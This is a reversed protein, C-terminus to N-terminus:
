ESAHLPQTDRPAGRREVELPLVGPNGVDTPLEVDARDELAPDAPIAVPIRIVAVMTFTASPM